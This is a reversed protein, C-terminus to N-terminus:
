RRLQILTVEPPVGVRVRWGTCGIGTNVYLYQEGESYLGGWEPYRYKVPSWDGIRIQMAHTHGALMLDIGADIVEQRWHRPNHSLLIKFAPVAIGSGASDINQSLAHQLNGYVTFPPEGINGVGALLISDGGRRLVTHCNDLLQWGANYIIHHLRRRDEIRQRPTFYRPYDAYDHNGMIAYCLPQSDGTGSDVRVAFKRLKEVWPDAQAAQMTVLDGTFCVIDPRLSMVTDALRDMFADDDGADFSDIHFDSIQVIRFGDFSAPLNASKVEVRNVDIGFRTVWHGYALVGALGLVLALDVAWWLRHIVHPEAVKRFLLWLLLNILAIVAALLLITLLLILIWFVLRNM